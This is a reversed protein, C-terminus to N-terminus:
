ATRKMRYTQLRGTAEHVAEMEYVAVLGASEPLITEDGGDTANEVNAKSDYLRIRSTILQGAVDFTTNDIFVNEHTLGLLRVIGSALDDVNTETAVIQEAERTYVINEVTRAADSYIITHATYVGVSTPTWSDEYRGAVIHAVDITAAPTGSGAAYIKTQPYQTENGDELVVVIPVPEGVKAPLTM